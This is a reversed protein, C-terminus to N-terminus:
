PQPLFCFKTRKIESSKKYIKRIVRLVLHSKDALAASTYNPFRVDTKERFVVATGTQRCLHM